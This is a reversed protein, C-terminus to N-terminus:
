GNTCFCKTLPTVTPATFPHNGQREARSVIILVPPLLIFSFFSADRAIDPTSHTLMSAAQPPPEDDLAATDPEAADPEAEASPVPLTVGTPSYGITFSGIVKLIMPAFSGPAGSQLSNSTNWRKDSIVLM